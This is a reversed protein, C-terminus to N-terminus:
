LLGEATMLALYSALYLGTGKPTYEQPFKSLSGNTEQRKMQLFCRLEIRKGGQLDTSATIGRWEKRGKSSATGTVLGQWDNLALYSRFCTSVGHSWPPHKSNDPMPGGESQTPNFGTRRQNGTKCPLALQPVMSQREKNTVIGLSWARSWGSHLSISIM